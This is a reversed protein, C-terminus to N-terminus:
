NCLVKSHPTILMQVQQHEVATVVKVKCLMQMHIIINIGM